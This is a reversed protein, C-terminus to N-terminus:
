PAGCAKLFRECFGLGTGKNLHGSARALGVGGASEGVSKDLIRTCATNEEQHVASIETALGGGLELLEDREIGTALKGLKVVNLVKGGVLEVGNKGACKAPCANMRGPRGAQVSKASATRWILHHLLEASVTPRIRWCPHDGLWKLFVAEPLRSIVKIGGLGRGHKGEGLGAPCSWSNPKAKQRTLRRLAAERAFSHACRRSSFCEM